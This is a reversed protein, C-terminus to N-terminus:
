SVVGLLLVVGLLFDYDTTSIHHQMALNLLHLTLQIPKGGGQLLHLEVIFLHLALNGDSSPSTDVVGCAHPLTM